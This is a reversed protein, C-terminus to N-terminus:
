PRETPSATNQPQRVARTVFDRSNDDTDSGNGRFEDAGGVAMTASTSTPQAKREVSGGAAPHAPGPNTEPVSRGVGYGLADVLGDRDTPQTGLRGTGLRVNGVGSAINTSGWVVDPPVSPNSAAYGNSGVLFYGRAPIVSGPPLTTLVTFNIASSDWAATRYQVQWGSMDVDLITPNHLEIFDELSSGVGAGSVESIVVHDAVPPQVTVTGFNAPSGQAVAGDQDCYVWEQAEAPGRTFRYRFGYFYTGLTNFDFISWTEDEHASAADAAYAYHFTAYQWAWTEPAQADTGYGMQVVLYPFEDNGAANRTTVQDTYFRSFVNQTTGQNVPLGFTKPRHISCDEVPGPIVVGCSENPQGPTGRNAGSLLTESPCWYWPRSSPADYILPALNLSRGPGSNMHTSYGYSMRDLYSNGLLVGVRGRTDDLPNGPFVGHVPIGGNTARNANPGLVLMGHPAMLPRQGAVWRVDVTFREGSAIEVDVDLGSVDLLKDTLNLIEVYETTGGTPQYMVETILVDSSGARSPTACAGDFCVAGQGPCLNTTPTYVCRPVDDQVVCAEAYRVIRVGDAACEAARPPCVFDACAGPLTISTTALASSNDAGDFVRLGFYWTAAASPLVRTAEEEEGPARPQATTMLTASAFNGETIPSASYRLEYRSATGLMDDDGTARWTLHVTRYDRLSASLVPQAPAIDDTVVLLVEASTLSSGGITATLTYTGEDDLSVDSFTAVGDVPVVTLTGRLAGAPGGQLGLTVASSATSVRNGFLDTVTVRLGPLVQRVLGFAVSSPFRLEAPAGPTVTLAHSASVQAASDRFTVSQSGATRLTIPFSQVGQNALAYTRTPLPSAAADSSSTVVTGTYDTKVNGFGDYATVSFSRSQGAVLETPLPTMRLAALAGPRVAVQAQATLGAVVTDRAVLTRSGVVTFAVNFMRQGADAETFTYDAPVTAGSDGPAEFRVTGRYNTAVNDFADRISVTATVSAGVAPQAPSLTLVMRAVAGASVQTSATATLSTQGVDRVTVSRSGAAMLVVPFTHQGADQGPVFTYDAPLTAGSDTSTFRVTGAYGTVLNGFRDRVSVTVHQEVGASIAGPLGALELRDVAGTVVEVDLTATLQPQAADTVTIHRVGSAYLIVGGLTHRGGAASTFTFDAPLQAQADDSTFRVTGTYGPAVNDFADYATVVLEGAVGASLTGSALSLGLRVAPGPQITFPESQVAPLGAVSASFRHTGASAVTLGDFSAVGNVAAVQVAQFRESGVLTLTVPSTASTFVQGDADLLAVRVGPLSAGAIGGAPQVTFAVRAVGPDRTQVMVGASRATNGQNDVVRLAVHYPTGPNLGTLTASESTGAPSPASLGPVPTAADFRADTDIPSTSYRLDHATAQGWEGDDGVAVWSVTVTSLTAASATLVPTAPPVDDVVDLDASEVPPLGDATARLRFRGESEVRVSAFSAVGEVPTAETSGMLSVTSSGLGLTVGPASATVRNGHIDELGVQVLPLTARVSVRSPVQVFVLGAVSGASVRLDAGASLAPQVEDVIDVRQSGARKLQLGTFRFRGADGETFAHASPVEATVDSARVSMTGRYGSAVNGFADRVTVEVDFAAGAVVNSPLGSTEVSAAYSPTVDFVPSLAPELGDAEAKLQYGAGARTLVVETFRAVGGVASATVTGDLSAAGPGAVLSLTVEATSTEVFRGNADEIVVALPDVPVGARASLAGASFVLRAPPVADFTVVPRTSVLVSRGDVEVTASVTKEEARTSMVSAVAVGQGNTRGTPQTVTNGEGSVEVRVSAGEVPSGDERRATVTVTVVDQGDAIVRSTRSVEVSSRTADLGPQPQPGPPKSDGGGCALSLGLFLVGLVQTHLLRRVSM